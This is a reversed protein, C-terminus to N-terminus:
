KHASVRWRWKLNGTQRHKAPSLDGRSHSYTAKAAHFHLGSRPPSRAPLHAPEAAWDQIAPEELWPRPTRGGTEGEKVSARGAPARPIGCHPIIGRMQVHPLCDPRLRGLGTCCGIFWRRRCPKRSPFQNSSIESRDLSPSPRKVWLVRTVSYGSM